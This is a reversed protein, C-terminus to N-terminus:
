EETAEADIVNVIAPDRWNVGYFDALQVVVIPVFAQVVEDNDVYKRVTTQSVGLRKAVMYPSLGTKEHIPKLTISFKQM